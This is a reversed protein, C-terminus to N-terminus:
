GVLDKYKMAPCPVLCLVNCKTFRNTAKLFGNARTKETKHSLMHLSMWMKYGFKIAPAGKMLIQTLLLDKGSTLRNLPFRVWERLTTFACDQYVYLYAYLNVADLVM